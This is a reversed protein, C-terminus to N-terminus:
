NIMTIGGKLTLMGDAKVTTLPSSMQAMAQGTIKVMIGDLQIGTQDIKLSNGGVTLTISQMATIDIKGLDANIKINGMAVDLSSNGMEVKTTDNGMSVTTSRNGTSVKTTQDGQDVTTKLNGQTVEITRDKTVTITQKGKITVTEDVKVTVVRCNDVTLTQDHEVETTYDKEAHFYILESGSTDDITFESFQSSTGSLTSRTRLGLKNKDSDSYIPASVGNYLGGIVMPRDPDGDVFGVAVETGVRPLFQAGWGNGAWPQIVRAWVADSGTAEGRHDYFLRVKVRALSDTYIEEGSQMQIDAGVSSQPGMVLGTFIGDLRPRRTLAPQRWTVSNLFCTFHANYTAVASQSIWSEDRAHHSVAQVAYTSDFPSAPRSSITITGGPVMGGFHTSGEFLNAVAEAAQMEWTTRNTVMGNDFTLAPWRFADRTSAGSTALTTPQTNALQTTPNEPDYDKLSWKGFVTASVKHFEQIHPNTDANSGGIALTANPIATFASNEKAIVLKHASATHQFFYFWGEEEMLRTAFHLDTENYQVTYQRSASGGPPGSLDTLGIDNFMATLIDAASKTEYIRCDVTQGMFWLKPVMVLNYVTYADASSASRIPPGATVSQVIGHFYRIPSGNAQLTVCAPQFLLQNPDVTGQQCIAEVNFQFPQSIAEHASLAIPILVDAGLASTMTLLATSRSWTAM